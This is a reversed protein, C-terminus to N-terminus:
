VKVSFSAMFEGQYTCQCTGCVADDQMIRDRLEEASRDQDSIGRCFCVIM